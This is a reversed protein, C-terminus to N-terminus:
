RGREALELAAEVEATDHLAIERGLLRPAGAVAAAVAGVQDASVGFSSTGSFRTQVPGLVFAFLRRDAPSEARAVRQMMLIAAQEMSVLGSAPMPNSASDGVIVTYSGNARLRTLIARLIAMHTTALEVFARQWDAETIQSLPGGSWWGGISAVLHDIGGLGREVRNVLEDAGNFTTYDGVVLRLNQTAAEGQTERFEESRAQSRTPVAVVAGAALYGRVVGEGVGGTGGPVLVRHGTLNPPQARGVM